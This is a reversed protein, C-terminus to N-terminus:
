EHTFKYKLNNNFNIILTNKFIKKYFKEAYPTKIIKNNNIISLIELYLIKDNKILQFKRDSFKKISVNPSFHIYSISNSLYTRDSFIISKDLCYIDRSIENYKFINKVEHYKINVNQHIKTFNILKSKKGYRFSKILESQSKSLSTTINHAKSSRFYNRSSDDLYNYNGSDTIFKSEDVWLEYTSIADHLHAPCHVPNIDSAYIICKVSKNNKLEIFPYNSLNSKLNFNKSLESILKSSSFHYNEFSDNILIKDDFNLSTSFTLMKEIHFKLNILLSDNTCENEELYFYLISLDFLISNHYDLSKEYHCGSESIIQDALLSELTKFYSKASKDELFFSSLSLSMYNKLLHNGDSDYEINEKLYEFDCHIIENLKLIIEKSIKMEHCKGILIFINFIRTSVAYPYWFSHSTKISKADDYIKSVKNITNIILNIDNSSVLSIVFQFYSLEYQKLKDDENFVESEFFNELKQKFHGLFLIKEQDLLKLAKKNIGTNEVNKLFNTLKKFNFSKKHVYFNSFIVKKRGFFIIRLRNILQSPKYNLFSILHNIM